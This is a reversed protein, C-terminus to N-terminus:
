PSRPRSRPKVSGTGVGPTPLPDVTAATGPRVTTSPNSKILNDDNCARSTIRVHLEGSNDLFPLLPTLAADLQHMPDRALEIKGRTVAAIAEKCIPAASLESLVADNVIFALRAKRAMTHSRTSGMPEIPGRNAISALVRLPDRDEYFANGVRPLEVMLLSGWLQDRALLCEDFIPDKYSEVGEPGGWVPRFQNYAQRGIPPYDNAYTGLKSSAPAFEVLVNRWIPAFNALEDGAVNVRGAPEICVTAGAEYEERSLQWGSTALVTLEDTSPFGITLGGGGGPKSPPSVNITLPASGRLALAVIAGALAVGLVVAAFRARRASKRLDALDDRIPSVAPPADRWAALNSIAIADATGAGRLGLVGIVMGTHADVVPGGSFGDTVQDGEIALLWGPHKKVVKLPDYTLQTTERIKAPRATARRGRDVRTFGIAFVEDGVAAGRTLTQAEETLGEAALVALDIGDATGDWLVKAPRGNAELGTGGLDSVVHACTVVHSVVGARRAVFGSGHSRGDPGTILVVNRTWDDAGPETV